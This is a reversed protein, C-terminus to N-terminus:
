DGCFCDIKEQEDFLNFQRNMFDGMETYTPRDFSFRIGKSQKDKVLTQAYKEQEIWWIAREPKEKILGLVQNAPKLFCLDCNGALTHGNVSVLNLDFDNNKWFEKIDHITVNDRALPMERTIGTKEDFPNARIKAVRRQEDARIGVFSIWDSWGLSELYKKATIIKLDITCFRAITNPLYKRKRILAAFPEGNRSATEYNVLQFSPKEPLYEVWDISVNWRHSCEKIFKLTNEDEKGTNAFVVKAIDPLGNNAELVKYLMYASTRGGSFNIVTPEKILYPNM